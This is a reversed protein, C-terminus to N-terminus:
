FKTSLSRGVIPPDLDEHDRLPELLRLPREVRRDKHVELTDRQLRGEPEEEVLQPQGTDDPIAPQDDARPLANALDQPVGGFFRALSGLAAAGCPRSGIRGPRPRARIGRARYTRVRLPAAPRVSRERPTAPNPSGRPQVRRAIEEYHNGQLMVA